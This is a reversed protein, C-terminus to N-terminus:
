VCIFCRVPCSRFSDFQVIRLSLFSLSRVEVPVRCEVAGLDLNAGRPDFTVTLPITEGPPLNKVRDCDFSFGTNRYSMRDIQFTVNSSTPNRINIVQQRVTGLIVHEFDVLYDPLIPTAKSSSTKKTVSTSTTTLSTHSTNVAPPAFDLREFSGHHDFSQQLHNKVITTDLKQQIRKEDVEDQTKLQQFLQQEVSNEMLYRPLNMELRCFMGTGMLQIEDPQFHAVQLFVIKEFREPVNPIFKVTIVTSTMPACVGSEPQIEIQASQPNDQLANVNLFEFDLPVAGENTLTLTRTAFKDFHVDGFDLEHTNLRYAMFSAQGHLHLDYVPGNEM